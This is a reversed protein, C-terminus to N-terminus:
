EYKDTLICSYMGERLLILFAMKLGEGHKGIANTNGGKNSNGIRLYDLSEPNWGNKITIILRQTDHTVDEDVYQIEEEYDGYDLFNQYIERLAQQLGWKPLYDKGFGYHIIGSNKNLNPEINFKITSTEKLLQEHTM